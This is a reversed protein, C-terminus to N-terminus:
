GRADTSGLNVAAHAQRFVLVTGDVCLLCESMCCLLHAVVCRSFQNKSM